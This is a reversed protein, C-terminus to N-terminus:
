DHEYEETRFGDRTAVVMVHDGFIDQLVSEIKDCAGTLEDYDKILKKEAKTLERLQVGAERARSYPGNYDKVNHKSNEVVYFADVHNDENFDDDADSEDTKSEDFKLIKKIDEAMHKKDLILDFGHVRFVCADGDNFYPTYQSWKIGRAEPHADFFDKFSEKLALEGESKMKEKLAEVEKVLKVLKNKKM